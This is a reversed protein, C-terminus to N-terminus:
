GWGNRLPDRGGGRPRGGDGIDGLTIASYSVRMINEVEDETLGMLKALEPLTATRGNEDEFEKTLTILRNAEDEMKKAALVEEGEARIFEEVAARVRSAIHLELGATKECSGLADMLALNGEQIMDSVAAGSGEYESVLEPVIHLNGEVLRSFAAEDGSLHRELLAMNEEPSCPSIAALEDIYLKLYENETM